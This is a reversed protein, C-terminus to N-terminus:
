ETAGKKVLQAPRRLHALKRLREVDVFGTDELDHAEAPM